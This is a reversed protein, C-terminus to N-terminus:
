KVDCGPLNGPQAPCRTRCGVADRASAEDACGNSSELMAPVIVNKMSLDFIGHRAVSHCAIGASDENSMLEERQGLSKKLTRGSVRHRSSPRLRRTGSNMEFRERPVLEVVKMLGEYREDSLM